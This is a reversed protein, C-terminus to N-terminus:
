KHRNWKAACCVIWEFMWALERSHQRIYESLSAQLQLPARAIASHLTQAPAEIVGATISARKMHTYDLRAPDQAAMWTLYRHQFASWNAKYLADRDADSISTTSPAATPAQQGGAGNAAIASGYLLALIAGLILVLYQKRM